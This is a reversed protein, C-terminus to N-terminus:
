ARDGSRKVSGAILGTALIVATTLLLFAALTGSEEPNMRPFFDRFFAMSVADGFAVPLAIAAVTALREAVPVPRAIWYFLAAFFACDLLAWAATAGTVSTGLRIPLPSWRLAATSASWGIVGILIPRLYRSRRTSM